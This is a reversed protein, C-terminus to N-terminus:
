RVLAGRSARAEHSGPQSCCSALRARKCQPCRCGDSRPGSVCTRLEPVALECACTLALSAAGRSHSLRVVTPCCRPAGRPLPCSNLVVPINSCTTPLWCQRIRPCAQARVTGHVTKFAPRPRAAGGWVGRGADGRASRGARRPVGHAHGSGCGQTASSPRSCSMALGLGVCARAAACRTVQCM